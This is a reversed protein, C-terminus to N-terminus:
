TMKHGSDPVGTTRKLKPLNLSTPERPFSCVKTVSVVASFWHPFAIELALKESYRNSLFLTRIPSPNILRLLTPTPCVTLNWVVMAAEPAGADTDSTAFYRGGSNPGARGARVTEM